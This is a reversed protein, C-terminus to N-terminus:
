PSVAFQTLWSTAYRRGVEVGELAPLPSGTPRNANTHTCNSM